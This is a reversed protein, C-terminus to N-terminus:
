TAASATVNVGELIALSDPHRLELTRMGFIDYQNLMAGNMGLQYLGLPLLEKFRLNSWNGFYISTCNGGTEYNTTTTGNFTQTISIQKAIIIPTNYYFMVRFGGGINGYELRQSYTEELYTSFITRMEKTMIIFEPDNPEISDFAEKFKDYDFYVGGSTTDNQILNSANVLEHLGDWQEADGTDVDGYFFCKIISTKLEEMQADIENRKVDTVDQSMLMLPVSLDVNRYLNKFRSLNTAYTGKSTARAANDLAFDDAWAKGSATRTQVLSGIGKGPLRPIQTLLNNQFLELDQILTDYQPLSYVIDEPDGTGIQMAAHQYAINFPLPETIAEGRSVSFPQRLQKPHCNHKQSAKLLAVTRGEKSMQSLLQITSM